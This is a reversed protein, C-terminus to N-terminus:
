DQPICGSKDEFKDAKYYKAWAIIENRAKLSHESTDSQHNYWSFNMIHVDLHKEIYCKM